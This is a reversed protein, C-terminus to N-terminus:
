QPLTGINQVGKMNDMACIGLSIMNLAVCVIEKQAQEDERMRSLTLVSTTQDQFM